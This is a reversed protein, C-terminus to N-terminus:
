RSTQFNANGCSASIWRAAFTSDTNLTQGNGLATIHSSGQVSEPSLVQLKVTGNGRVGRTDCSMEIEASTATSTVIKETCEQNPTSNFLAGKEMDKETVCNRQTITRAREAPQAKMRAEMRARQEPTLRQLMEAPIPMHGRSNITTTVEWLGTKVNLRQLKDAGLAVVALWLVAALKFNRM